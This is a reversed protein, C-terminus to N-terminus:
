FDMCSVTVLIDISMLSGCCSVDILGYVVCYGIYKM